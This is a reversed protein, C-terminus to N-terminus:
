GKEAFFRDLVAKYIDTLTQIDDILINEDAKHATANLMGFEAVPCHDKIFRADSTGGSTSLEPTLGTVSEVAGAVVASLDGPPVLFPEGSVRVAMEYDGGGQASIGDFRQRIMKELSEGSHLDNFRINFKATATAPIVNTAPNGVDVSTVVPQSPPFHETGEDLTSEIIATLMAMLRHVPNDALHPYAAHGSTGSVTLTCNMSGRRGIKVIDGLSDTSTPEGVLCADLVENQDKLFGLVKVTGNVADGEEDGTILLSISGGFEPGREDLFRATAATFAAIGTKMDSAGRGYLRGDKVEASFPDASWNNEDGVPVVDTHGAFCFNPGDTGIRAYLNQVEDSGDGDFALRHCTFGLDELAGALVGIAGEDVPTVSPCRILAQSLELPDM